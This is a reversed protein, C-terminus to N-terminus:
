VGHNSFVEVHQNALLIDASTELGVLLLCCKQAHMLEIALISIWCPHVLCAKHHWNQLCKDICLLIHQVPSGIMELVDHKM